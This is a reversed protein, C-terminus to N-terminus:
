DVFGRAQEEMECGGVGTEDVHLGLEAHDRAARVFGEGRQGPEREALANEVFLVDVLARGIARVLHELLHDIRLLRLGQQLNKRAVPIPTRLTSLQM